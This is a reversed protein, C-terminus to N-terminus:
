RQATSDVAEDGAELAVKEKADEEKKKRRAERRYNYELSAMIGLLMNWLVIIQGFYSVGIFNTNHVLMTVGLGWILLTELKEGKKYRLLWTVARYFVYIQACFIILTILGGKVGMLVFQNTLDQAGFFWHGTYRSGLLFWENFRNIFADIIQYRFHATSGGTFSVGSILHWVPANM